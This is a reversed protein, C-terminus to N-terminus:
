FWSAEELLFLGVLTVPASLSGNLLLTHVPLKIIRTQPSALASTTTTTTTTTVTTTTTNAEEEVTYAIAIAGAILARATGGTFQSVALCCRLM